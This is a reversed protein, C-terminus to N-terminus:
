LGRVCRFGIYYVGYDPTNYDRFASRAKNPYVNWSGGRRVRYTLGDGRPGLCNSNTASTKSYWGPDFWDWCWESVNDATGHLGYNNPAFDTVPNSYPFGGTNYSPNYNRTTSLDYPYAAVSYYNAQTHTITNGWPFRNALLGGRAAKEWEAETPLRYGDANWKVFNTWLAAQMSSRYVYAPDLSTDLYYCPTLGEMESRANCWRVADYWNLSQVPHDGAKGQGPNEFEYGHNTAWIYVSDWLDRTVEYRGVYYESVYVTHLPLENTSGEAFTDGMQFSGAPIIVLDPATARKVCRFGATSTPSAGERLACCCDPANSAYSGGRRVRRSPSVGEPGRTDPRSAASNTYWYPDHWDWCWEWVNGALDYLGFGNTAFSGCPSTYPAAGNTFAPHYGTTPSKDYSYYTGAYYNARTHSIVNTDGWPFRLGTAGGRAAREWEAETPLRYGNASWNVFSNSVTLQGARYVTSQASELYYCPTLGEMESRANCWKVADYWRAYSVPHTAAKALGANPSFDYGHNTAWSYVIDWLAKSVELRDMYFGSVTAMHVPVEDAGLDAFSDGMAFSGGPVLTTNPSVAMARYFRQGALESDSDVVSTPSSTLAFNTLSIWNTSLLNNLFQLQCLTGTPGNISIIPRGGSM